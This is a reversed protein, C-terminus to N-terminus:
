TQITVPITHTVETAGDESDISYKIYYNIRGKEIEEATIHWVGTYTVSNEAKLGNYVQELYLDPKYLRIEGEMDTQSSNYIKITINVDQESIVSQPESLSSVRIPDTEASAACACALLFVAMVLVAALRTIYGRNDM